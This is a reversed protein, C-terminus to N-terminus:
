EGSRRLQRMAPRNRSVILYGGGALLLVFAAGAPFAWGPVGEGEDPRTKPPVYGVFGKIAFRRGETRGAVRWNRVFRPADQSVGPAPQPPEGTMVVRPDHWGSSRGSRITRWPRSALDLIVVPKASRNVVVLKDGLVIQAQLGVVNPEISSVSAVFGVDTSVGPGHAAASGACALGAVIATVLHRVTM